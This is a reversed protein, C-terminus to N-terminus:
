PTATCELQIVPPQLELQVVARQSSQRHALTAGRRPMLAAVLDLGVHTAPAAATTTLAPAPWQGPNSITIQVTDPHLGKRLAIHVDQHEKGGHKIANLILENLVLAVPVAETAHLRCPQWGPPIDLAIPVQWLTQLGAAVAGTLECLRVQDISARGQLGHIVAISQVQGMLQTMPGHLQPHTRDFKHMMGMIGQLNNKIRHHVERVLADRHAQERQRRQAEQTHRHTIDVMTMVYHTTRAQRNLVPTIGVWAPYLAGCKRRHWEQRQVAQRVPADHPAAQPADPEGPAPARLFHPTQGLLEHAAYGSMTLFSQNAHLIMQRQDTILLGEQCEFAIAAIHLRANQRQREALYAALSMGVLALILMYSGYGFGHSAAMDRAFFGSGQSVSWLAQLAVMCLLGVTGLMGLRVGAWTIWLFMWYGQAAPGLLESGWHAFVMQGAVLSLAYVLLGEPIRRLTPHNRLTNWWSLVLATVLVTGLATGLWWQLLTRPWDHASIQGSALLATAGVLAGAGAGAGGGYVLLQRCARFSHCRLDFHGVSQLLWAGLGAAVTAALVESLVGAGPMGPTLGHVLLAGVLVSALLRQGGLLVWALALGSAPLFLPALPAGPLHAPAMDAVLMYLLTACAFVLLPPPPRHLPM